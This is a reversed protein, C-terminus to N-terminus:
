EAVETFGDRRGTYVAAWAEGVRGWTYREVQQRASRVMRGAGEPDELLAAIARAMAPPDDPPVIVGTEGHRVLAGIDGTGTTVVALGAAFAELVSNPQNDIVSSNVFIDAEDYRRPMMPREVQGLFRIGDAGLSAALRRLGAEEGGSGAITLTAEPYRAKLLVFAKVTVDVRYHPQLNRASVLRPRLPTRERFPFSTTDVVNPIVRTRFGHRAFVGRLFESPVVIEDALRLWPRVLVGWRALHDAAEGSRYNLIVRKGLLRGAVMAPVPALLFSWYSASFVHVVGAGRVRVLGPLFFAQNVITRVGPYRRLWRLGTPFRPNIALFTVAYGDGRLALTLADAQVGQGGLTELSPAVIAVGPRARLPSRTASAVRSTNM